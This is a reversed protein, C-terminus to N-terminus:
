FNILPRHSSLSYVSYRAGSGISWTLKVFGESPMKCLSFDNCTVRPRCTTCICMACSNNDLFLNLTLWFADTWLQRWADGASRSRPEGRASKWWRRREYNWGREERTFYGLLQRMRVLKESEVALNRPEKKAFELGSVSEKQTTFKTSELLLSALDTEERFM